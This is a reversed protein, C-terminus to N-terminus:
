RRLRSFPARPGRPPAAADFAVLLAPAGLFADGVGGIRGKAGHARELRPEPGGLNARPGDEAADIAMAAEGGLAQAVAGDRADHLTGGLAGPEVRIGERPV